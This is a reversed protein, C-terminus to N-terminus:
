TDYNEGFEFFYNKNESFLVDHSIKEGSFIIEIHPNNKIIELLESSFCARVEHNTAVGNWIQDNTFNDNILSQLDWLIETNDNNFTIRIWAETHPAINMRREVSIDIKTLEEVKCDIDVALMQVDEVEIKEFDYFTPRNNEIEASFNDYFERAEEITLESLVDGNKLLELKGTEKNLCVDFM